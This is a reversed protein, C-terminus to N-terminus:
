PQVRHSGQRDRHSASGNRPSGSPFDTRAGNSQACARDADTRSSTERDGSCRRAPWERTAHVALRGGRVAASRRNGISTGESEVVRTTAYGYRRLLLAVAKAAREDRRASQVIVETIPLNTGLDFMRVYPRLTGSSPEFCLEDKQVTDINTVARWELESAFHGDKFFPISELLWRCLIKVAGILLPEPVTKRKRLYNLTAELYNDVLTEQQERSYILPAFSYQGGEYLKEM